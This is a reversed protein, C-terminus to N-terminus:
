RNAGTIAATRSNASPPPGTNPMQLPNWIRQSAPRRGPARILFRPSDNTQRHTLMRVSRPASRTSPNAGPSTSWTGMLCPSPCNTAEAPSIALISASPNTANRYQEGFTATSSRNLGLPLVFAMAPRHPSPRPTRPSIGCGSCATSGSRPGVPPCATNWHSNAAARAFTLEPQAVLGEVACETERIVLVVNDDLLQSALRVTGLERHERHHPGLVARVLRALHVQLHKGRSPRLDQHAWPLVGPHHIEALADGAHELHLGMGMRAGDLRELTGGGAHAADDPVHQG